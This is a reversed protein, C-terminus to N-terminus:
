KTLLKKVKKRIRQIANDIQKPEFGLFEGIEIYNLGDVMHLFVEYEFDSLVSKIKTKIIDLEESEITKNLPDSNSNDKVMDMLSLGFEDYIFDLSYAEINVKRKLANQKQILQILKRKICLSLFTRFKTNHGEKYGLTADRFALYAESYVANEDLGLKVFSNKYNNYHVNIIYKYRELLVESALENREKILSLLELDNLKNM